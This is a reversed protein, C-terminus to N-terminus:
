EPGAMISSIVRTRHDFIRQLDPRVILRHILGRGPLRPLEYRVHDRMLTGGPTPEFIHEHIWHRYPGRVQEDVFRHPPDYLSILTRWRMPVGRIRLRYDIITGRRMEIPRPTIIRFRLFPPTIRELNEANEFFSFVQDIPLPLTQEIRLEHMVTSPESPSM